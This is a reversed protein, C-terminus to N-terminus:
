FARVALGHEHLRQFHQILRKALWPSDITLGVEINGEQGAKTFNASTRLSARRGRRRVERPAVFAQRRSRITPRLIRHAVPLRQAVSQRHKVRTGAITRHGTLDAQQSIVGLM